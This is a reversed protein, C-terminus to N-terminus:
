PECDVKVYPQKTKTAIIIDRWNSAYDALSASILAQQITAVTGRFEAGTKDRFRTFFLHRDPWSATSYSLTTFWTRDKNTTNAWHMKQDIWNYDGSPCYSSEDSGKKSCLPDVLNGTFQDPFIDKEAMDWVM